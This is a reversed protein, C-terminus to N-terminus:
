RGADGGGRESYHAAACSGARGRQERGRWGLWMEAALLLLALQVANGYGDEVAAIAARARARLALRGNTSQM